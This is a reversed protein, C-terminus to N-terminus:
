SETLLRRGTLLKTRPMFFASLPPMPTLACEYITSVGLRHVLLPKQSKNMLGRPCLASLPEGSATFCPELSITM